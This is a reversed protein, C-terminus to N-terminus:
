IEFDIYVFDYLFYYIESVCASSIFFVPILRRACICRFNIIKM